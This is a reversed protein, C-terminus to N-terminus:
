KVMIMKQTSVINGTQMRYFYTGSGVERNQDDRGEWVVNYRGAQLYDKVLTTIKQGRSNFIELRVNDNNAISFSITTNPNFPNPYNTELQTTLYPLETEDEVSLFKSRIGIFDDENIEMRNMKVDDLDNSGRFRDNSEPVHKVYDFKVNSDDSPYELTIADINRMCDQGSGGTLVIENYASKGTEHQYVEIRLVDDPYWSVPSGIESSTLTGLDFRILFATGTCNMGTPFPSNQDPGEIIYDPRSVIYAKYTIDGEDLDPHVLNNDVENNWYGGEDFVQQSIVLTGQAMLVTAIFMMAVTLVSIKKM